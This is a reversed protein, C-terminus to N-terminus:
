PKTLELQAEAANRSLARGTLACAARWAADAVQQDEDAILAILADLPRKSGMRALTDCAMIRLAPNEHELLPLLDAALQDRFLRREGYAGLAAAIRAPSGEGFAQQAEERGASMWDKERAYWEHWAEISAGLRQASIQQLAALAAERSSAQPAELQALLVPIQSGDDLVGIARLAARTWEPRAPDLSEALWAAFPHDLAPDGSSGIRPVLAVAQQALWPSSRACADLVVLARRDGLDGLAFLLQKAASADTSRLLEIMSPLQAPDRRLIAAYAARLPECVASPIEEKVRPALAALKLLDANRGVVMLVRLALISLHADAGAAGASLRRELETRVLAEPLHALAALLFERQAISLLQAPDQPDVRPVREQVLIDMLAPLADAGLAQLRVQL